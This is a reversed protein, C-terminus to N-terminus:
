LEREPSINSKSENISIEGSLYMERPLTRSM